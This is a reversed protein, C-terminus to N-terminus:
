KANQIQNTKKKLGVRAQEQHHHVGVLPEGHVGRLDDVDVATALPVLHSRVDEGDGVSGVPGHEVGPLVLGHEDRVLGGRM